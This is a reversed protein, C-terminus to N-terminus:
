RSLAMKVPLQFYGYAARNHAIAPEWQWDIKRMVRLVEAEFGYGGPGDMQCIELNDVRGEPTITFCVMVLAEKGAERAAEPYEVLATIKEYYQMIGGKVSAAVYDRASDFATPKGEQDYHQVSLRLEKGMNSDAAAYREFSALKGNAHYFYWSGVRIGHDYTGYEFLQRSETYRTYRGQRKGDKYTGSVLIRGKDDFNQYPGDLTDNRYNRRKVLVGAESYYRHEGSNKGNVYAGQFRIQGNDYRAQWRGVAEGNRYTGLSYAPLESNREYWKGHKLGHVYQGSDLLQGKPNYSEWSGQRFSDPVFQPRLRSYHARIHLNGNLFRVTRLFSNQDVPSWAETYVAYKKKVERYDGGLWYLKQKQAALVLPLFLLLAALGKSRFAQSRNGM